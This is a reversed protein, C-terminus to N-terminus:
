LLVPDEEVRDCRGATNDACHDSSQSGGIRATRLVAWSLRGERAAEWESM